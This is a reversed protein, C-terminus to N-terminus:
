NILGKERYHFSYGPKYGHEKQESKCIIHSCLQVIHYNRLITRSIIEGDLIGNEGDAIVFGLPTLADEDPFSGVFLLDDHGGVLGVDRDDAFVAVRTDEDPVVMGVQLVRAAELTHHETRHGIGHSVIILEDIAAVPSMTRTGEFTICQEHQTFSELTLIHGDDVIGHRMVVGIPPLCTRISCTDSLSDGHMALGITRHEAVTVDMAELVRYEGAIRTRTLYEITAIDITRDIENKTRGSRPKLIALNTGDAIAIQGSSGSWGLIRIAVDELMALDCGLGTGLSIQATRPAVPGTDDKHFAFKWSGDVLCAPMIPIVQSSFKRCTIGFVM